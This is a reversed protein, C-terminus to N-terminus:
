YSGGTWTPLADLVDTVLKDNVIGQLLSYVAKASPYQEDTSTDSIQTVMRGKKEYGEMGFLNQENVKIGSSLTGIQTYAIEEDVAIVPNISVTSNDVTFVIYATNASVVDVKFGNDTEEYNNLHYYSANSVLNARNVHMIKNFNSDFTIAKCTDSGTLFSMGEVYVTSGSTCPIFGTSTHYSDEILNGSTDYYCNKKYGIENFIAGNGDTAKALKDDFTPVYDTQFLADQEEKLVLRHNENGDNFYPQNDVPKFWRTFPEQLIVMQELNSETDTYILSRIDYSPMEYYFFDNLITGRCNGIMSIHQYMNSATWLSNTSNWDWVRSGSLETNRSRILQIGHKAYPTGDEAKRPQVIASVYANNCDELSVGIESADIFAEIRMEHNYGENLTVARIGYSFAGAIRLGSFHLGWIFTSTASGDTKIYVATGSSEGKMSAHTGSSNPKCINLDTLYRATKWQPSWHTFPPVDKIATHVSTDVNVVNGTFGYPVNVTAHNGKLSGSRNITICNGTTQTFELVVDQALELECNDRVILEGSLKYTGSPVFVRRNESLATQFATTDDTTGDGLAGYTQPTNDLRTGMPLYKKDLPYVTEITNGIFLRYKSNTISKDTLEVFSKFGIMEAYEDYVELIYGGDFYVMVGLELGEAFFPQAVVIQYGLTDGSIYYGKGVELGFNTETSSYTGGNVSLRESFLLDSETYYTYHTRNKVYDKEMPNDQIWDAQVQEGSPHNDMHDNITESLKSIDNKNKEIQAIQGATAGSGGANAVAADVYEESAYRKVGNNM